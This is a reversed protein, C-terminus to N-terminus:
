FNLRTEDPWLCGTKQGSGGDAAVADIVIGPDVMWIKVHAFRAASPIFARLCRPTACFM